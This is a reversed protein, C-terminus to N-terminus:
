KKSKPKSSRGSSSRPLKRSSLMAMDGCSNWEEPYGMLWCALAPNVPGNIEHKTLYKEMLKRAGSGGWKCLAIGGTKKQPATPTPGPINVWLIFETGVIRRGLARLLYFRCGSKTVSQKWTLRYLISGSKATRVRFRNVLSRALAFSISSTIGCRGYMGSTLLGKEKAQKASLNALVPDPGSQEKSQGIPSVCPMHGDASEQSSIANALDDFNMQYSM